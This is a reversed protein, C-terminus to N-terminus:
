ARIQQFGNKDLMSLMNNLTTDNLIVRQQHDETKQLMAYGSGEPYFSMEVCGKRFRYLPTRKSYDYPFGYHKNKKSM